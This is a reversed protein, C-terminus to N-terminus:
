KENEWIYKRLYNSAKKREETVIRDINKIDKDMKYIKELESLDNILHKTIDLRKILDILKNQNSTRIIVSFKKAYKISFITGHFTDTIVFDANIFLKLCQFPSCVLFDKIWFQPAGIAIPKLDYNECFRKIAAIEDKKHIRNRYSYVICYRSNKIINSINQIEKSFDWILVPDLNEHPFKQTLNKVFEHTNHDRVSFASINIFAKKIRESVNIPLSEFKTAGCSAAYTMVKKAEPVNGFLQSTFGWFGANLCNFVEDSGIICIDYEISKKYIDLENKRFKEFLNDQRKELKRHRIRNFIYKDLKSFKGVIGTKEFESSDEDACGNLLDYDEKIKKIDMFEVECNSQELMHKLGYAQLLSGMNNIRQMSLICAKM